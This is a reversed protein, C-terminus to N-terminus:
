ATPVRRASPLEYVAYPARIVPKAVNRVPIGGHTQGTETGYHAHGHVALVVPQEGAEGDTREDARDIAEGIKESGLVLMLELPEGELTSRTPSYHTLAIRVDADHTAAVMDGFLAATAAVHQAALRLEREGFDHLRFPSFGGGTGMMGAVGFHVGGATFTVAQQELMTLGADSLMATIEAAHGSHHDHNGLITVVPVDLGAFTDRVAAAEALSGQETLDGALLLLDVEAAAQEYVPRLRAADGPRLHIDGVAGVRVPRDTRDPASTDTTV